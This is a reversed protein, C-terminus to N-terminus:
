PRRGEQLLRELREEYLSGPARARLAAARAEAESRRGLRVLSEVLLFDREIVLAGSPFLRVHDRLVELSREPRRELEARARELLKTERLLEHETATSSPTTSLASLAAHPAVPLPAPVEATPAPLPPPVREVVRTSPRAPAASSPLARPAAHPPATLRPWAVVLAATTGLAAGFAAHQVLALVGFAAPTAVLALVRKRSREFTPQSLPAPPRGARFLRALEPEAAADDILRSPNNM